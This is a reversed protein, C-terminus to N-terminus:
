RHARNPVQYSLQVHEVSFRYICRMLLDPSISNEAKEVYLRQLGRRELEGGFLYLGGVGEETIGGCFCRRITLYRCFLQATAMM